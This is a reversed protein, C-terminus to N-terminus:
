PVKPSPSSSPDTAILIKKEALTQILDGIYTDTFRPKIEKVRQRLNESTLRLRNRAAERDAYVITAILELDAADYSGFETLAWRFHDRHPSVEKGTKAQLQPLEKGPAFEYGYGSGSPFHVVKSSVAGLTEAQGLDDLVDSDFPGYTFLRFDYGLPVKKITQLLYVLKMVATRGLTKPAQAVLECLVGLRLLWREEDSM